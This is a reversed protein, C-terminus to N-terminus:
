HNTMMTRSSPSSNLSLVTEKDANRSLACTYLQSIKQHVGGELLGLAKAAQRGRKTGIRQAQQ